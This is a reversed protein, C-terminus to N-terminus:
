KTVGNVSRQLNIGTNYSVRVIDRLLIRLCDLYIDWISLAINYHYQFLQKMHNASVSTIKNSIMELLMRKRQERTMLVYGHDKLFGLAEELNKEFLTIKDDHTHNLVWCLVDTCSSLLTRNFQNDVFPFPVEDSCIAAFADHALQIEHLDRHTIKDSQNEKM